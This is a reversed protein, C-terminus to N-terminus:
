ETNGPAERSSTTGLPVLWLSIAPGPGPSPGPLRNEWRHSKTHRPILDQLSPFPFKGLEQVFPLCKIGQFQIWLLKWAGLEAM